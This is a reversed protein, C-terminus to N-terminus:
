NNKKKAPEIEKPSVRLTSFLDILMLYLSALSNNYTLRTKNTREIILCEQEINRYTFAEVLHNLENKITNPLAPDFDFTIDYYKLFRHFLPEKFQRKGNEADSLNGKSIKLDSSVNDISLGMETRLKKEFLGLLEAKVM